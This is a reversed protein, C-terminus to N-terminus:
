TAGTKLEYFPTSISVEESGGLAWGAAATVTVKGGSAVSSAATQEV